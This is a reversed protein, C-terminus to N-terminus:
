PGYHHPMGETNGYSIERYIALINEASSMWTFKNAMELANRIINLTFQEDSLYSNIAEALANIDGPKVLIGTKRHIVVESIGGVDSAVIPVGSMMVEPIVTPFGESISPLIFIDAINIWIPIEDHDKRGLFFVNKDINLKKSLKILNEKESGDGILYLVIDNKKYIHQLKAFAELLYNVGKVPKLNGIFLIVKKREDVGLRKKATEKSMPFFKNPDAGNYIVTINNLGERITLIKEKLKNSVAIIHDSRQLAYRTLAYALRSYSPYINIDSGHVTCVHPIKFKKSLLVGALGIPLITHTHVIARINNKRLLKRLLLFCSFYIAISAFHFYIKGPIVLYRRYFVKIGEIINKREIEGYKKWKKKFWLFRPSWPVMVVVTIQGKIFKRLARVQEYVFTGQYPEHRRPFMATLVILEIDVQNNQQQKSPM